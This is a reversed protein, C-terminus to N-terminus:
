LCDFCFLFCFFQHMSESGSLHSSSRRRECTGNINRCSEGSKLARNKWFRSEQFEQSSITCSALRFFPWTNRVAFVRPRQFISGIIKLCSATYLDGKIM